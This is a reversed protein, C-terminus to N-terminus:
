FLVSIFLFCYGKSSSKRSCPEPELALCHPRPPLSAQRGDRLTDAPRVSTESDRYLGWGPGRVAQVEPLQSKCGSLFASQILTRVGPGQLRGVPSCVKGGPHGLDQQKSQEGCSSFEGEVRQGRSSIQECIEPNHVFVFGPCPGHSWGLGM